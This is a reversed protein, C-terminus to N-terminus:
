SLGWGVGWAEFGLGSRHAAGLLADTTHGQVMMLTAILRALDLFAVRSHTQTSTM